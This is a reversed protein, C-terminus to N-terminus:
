LPQSFVVTCAGDVIRVIQQGAPGVILVTVPEGNLRAEGEYAVPDASPCAAALPKPGGSTQDFASASSPTVAVQRRTAEVLAASDTFAGLDGLQVASASSGADGASPVAPAAAKSDEPLVASGAAAGPDGASSSSAASPATEPSRAATTENHGGGSRALLSAGIVLAVVVAAAISLVRLRRRAREAGLDIVPADETAPADDAAALAASISRERVDAPVGAVPAAVAAAVARLAEVRALLSPNAEVIAV